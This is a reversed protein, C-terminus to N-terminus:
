WGVELRLEEGGRLEYIFQQRNTRQSVTVLYRGPILRSLQFRGQSDTLATLNDPGSFNVGVLAKPAGDRGIVVGSVGQQESFAMPTTLAWFLTLGILLFGTKKM